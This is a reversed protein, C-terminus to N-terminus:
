NTDTDKESHSEVWKMLGSYGLKGQPGTSGELTNRLEVSRENIEASTVIGGAKNLEDMMEGLSRSSFALVTLFHDIRADMTEYTVFSAAEHFLTMMAQVNDEHRHQTTLRRNEKRENNRVRNAEEPISISVRPPALKYGPDNIDRAVPEPINGLLTLGEANLVNEASLPDAQVQTQYLHREKKIKERQEAQMARMRALSEKRHERKTQENELHDHLYSNRLERMRQRFEGSANQKGAKAAAAEGSPRKPVPLDSALMPEPKKRPVDRWNKPPPFGPAYGQKGPIYNASGQYDSDSSQFRRSVTVVRSKSAAVAIRKGLM